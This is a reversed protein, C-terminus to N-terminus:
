RGTTFQDLSQHNLYSADQAQAETSACTHFAIIVLM